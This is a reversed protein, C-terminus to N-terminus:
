CTCNNNIGLPLIIDDDLEGESVCGTVTVPEVCTPNYPQSDQKRFTIIIRPPYTKSDHETIMEDLPRNEAWFDVKSMM